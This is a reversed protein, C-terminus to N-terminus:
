VLAMRRLFMDTSPLELGNQHVYRTSDQIGRQISVDHLQSCSLIRGSRRRLLCRPLTPTAKALLLLFVIQCRCFALSFTEQFGLISNATGYISRLGSLGPLSHSPAAKTHRSRKDDDAITRPAANPSAFPLYPEGSISLAPSRNPTLTSM